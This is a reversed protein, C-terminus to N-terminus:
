FDSEKDVSYNKNSYIVNSASLFGIMVYFLRYNINGHTLFMCFCLLLMSLRLTDKLRIGKVLARYFTVVLVSFGVLGYTVLSDVIVSHIYYRGYREGVALRNINGPGVGFIINEVGYSKYKEYYFAWIDTRGNLGEINALFGWEVLREYLIVIILIGGIITGLIFLFNRMKKHNLIAYFGLAAMLAIITGRSVTLILCIGLTLLYIYDLIRKKQCSFLTKGELLAIMRFFLPIVILEAMTKVNDSFALRGNHVISDNKLMIGLIVSVIIGLACYDFALVIHGFKNEETYKKFNLFIILVFAFIVLAYMEPKQGLLYSIVACLFIFIYGVFENLLVKKLIWYRVIYVVCVIALLAVSLISSKSNLFPYIILWSLMCYQPYKILSYMLFFVTIIILLGDMGVGSLFGLLLSFLIYVKRIEKSPAEIM